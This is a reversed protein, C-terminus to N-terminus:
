EDYDFKKYKNPKRVQEKVKQKKKSPVYDGKDKFTKGM